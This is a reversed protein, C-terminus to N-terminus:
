RGKKILGGKCYEKLGGAKRIKELMEPNAKTGPPVNPKPVPGLEKSRKGPTYRNPNTSEAGAPVEDPAYSRTGKRKVAM